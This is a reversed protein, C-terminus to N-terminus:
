FAATPGVTPEATAPQTAPGPPEGLLGPTMQGRGRLPGLRHALIVDYRRRQTDNLLERTREVADAMAKDQRSKLATVGDNYDRHIQEYEKQQDPTLLAKLRTEWDTELRRGEANADAASQRVHEWIGRIQNRQDPTLQLDDALSTQDLTLRKDSPSLKMALMGAAAGGLLALACAVLVLLSSTSNRM